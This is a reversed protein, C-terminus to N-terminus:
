RKPLAPPLMFFADYGIVASFDPLSWSFALQYSAREYAIPQLSLDGVEFLSHGSKMARLADAASEARTAWDAPLLTGVSLAQLGFRVRAEEARLKFLNACSYPSLFIRDPAVQSAAAITLDASVANPAAVYLANM